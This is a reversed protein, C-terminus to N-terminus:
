LKFRSLAVSVSGKILKSLKEVIQQPDERMDDKIWDLMLGIFMYSYVQAIFQKDEDRVTIGAAEENIVNLLLQEVLPQLYKEVQERHVCRYVNLIFPKNEQVAKFIQLFGQQWTDYTKKEELARKADELCSWEVLDYIDKFHYYFSKRNMQCRECIDSVSIKHFPKTDMLEKLADALAKKTINSDAM